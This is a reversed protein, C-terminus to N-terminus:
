RVIVADLSGRYVTSSTVKFVLKLTHNGYAFQGPYDWRMQYTPKALTQVLTAVYQGDVYVDFKSFAVGGKYIISFSQGTFPFTITAGNQSTQKYAGNYASANSINHWGSSYVFASNKDDFMNSPPPVVTAASQTATPVVAILTATPSPLVINTATPSAPILTAIPTIGPVVPTSTPLPPNTATPSAPVLTASPTFSPPVTTNTPLPPNTSTPTPAASGITNGTLTVGASQYVYIDNFLTNYSVVVNQNALTQLSVGRKQGSPVYNNTITVNTLTGGVYSEYAAVGTRCDTISNGSVFVDHLQAGWGSYSEEGLAIGTARNGDRLHTGTCFSRNNRVNVYPSNDIYINVGYSDSVTNGEVLATVGRTVAIGEGCNDYVTNNRITTNQGGVKVKLASGWSTSLGCTGVGNRTVNDHVINNEITVNQGTVLIGFDTAGIVEFGSVRIYSGSVVIGNANIGQMNVIAGNGLISIPASATGSNSLTLTETYTGALVQLTDGPQLMSVAKPFTKFPATNSGPNSDRGSPSVYYTNSAASVHSVQGAGFVLTMAILFSMVPYILKKM